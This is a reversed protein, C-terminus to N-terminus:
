GARAAAVETETVSVTDNLRPVTAISLGTEAAVSRVAVRGTGAGPDSVVADQKM